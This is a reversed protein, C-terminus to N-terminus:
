FSYCQLITSHMHVNCVADGVKGSRFLNYGVFGSVEVSGGFDDKGSLSLFDTPM